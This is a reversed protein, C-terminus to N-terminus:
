RGGGLLPEVSVMIPRGILCHRELFPFFERQWFAAVAPGYPGTHRLCAVRVAPRQGVTVKVAPEPSPHFSGPDDASAGDAAQDAKRRAQDLKRIWAAREEARLRRRRLYEGLTEGMWARFPRQFHLPSFHAVEDALRELPLPEGLHAEIHALVRLMRREHEAGPGSM